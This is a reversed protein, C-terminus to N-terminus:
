IERVSLKASKEVLEDSDAFKLQLKQALERGVTTKGSGM